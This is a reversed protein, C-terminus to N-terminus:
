NYMLNNQNKNISTKLANMLQFDTFIKRGHIDHQEMNLVFVCECVFCKNRINCVSCLVNNLCACKHM